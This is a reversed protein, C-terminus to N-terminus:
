QTRPRSTSLVSSFVKLLKDPDDWHAFHNSGPISVTNLPRRKVGPIKLVNEGLEKELKWLGSIVGWITEDCWVLDVRTTPWVNDSPFFAKQRIDNMAIAASAQKIFHEDSRPGGTPDFFSAIDEVSFTASSPPRHPSPHSALGTFDQTDIGSHKFYGSIWSVFTSNKEAAPIAPDLLPHYSKPSAAYGLSSEYIIYTKLYHKLRGVVDPPFDAALAMFALGQLSGLSWGCLAVGGLKGDASPKPIAQEQIFKDMFVAIEKARDGLFRIMDDAGGQTIVDLENQSSPTSGPYDRRTIAVIRLNYTLALPFLRKFVPSHFSFGHLIFITVYTDNPLPGSDLYYLSTGADNVTLTPM